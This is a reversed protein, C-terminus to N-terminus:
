KRHKMHALCRGFTQCLLLMGGPEFSFVQPLFFIHFSSCILSQLLCSSMGTIKLLFDSRNNKHVAIDLIELVAAGTFELKM